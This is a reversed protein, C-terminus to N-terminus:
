PCQWNTGGDDTFTNHTDCVYIARLHCLGVAEKGCIQCYKGGGDPLLKAVGIDSLQSEVDYKVAALRYYMPLQAGYEGERAKHNFFTDSTFESNNKKFKSQPSWYIIYSESGPVEQWSVNVTMDSLLECDPKPPVLSAWIAGIKAKAMESYPSDAHNLLFSEYDDITNKTLTLNWISELANQAFESDQHKSLFVEYTSIDNEELTLKWIGELANKSFESTPHKDLFREYTDMQNKGLTLNWIGEIANKSFDSKPYKTLFAEYVDITGKAQAQKWDRKAGSCGTLVTLIVIFAFIAVVTKEVRSNQSRYFM